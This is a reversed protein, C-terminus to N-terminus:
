KGYVKKELDDYSLWQLALPKQLMGKPMRPATIRVSKKGVKIVDTYGRFMVSYVRDGVKLESTDKIRNEEQAKKFAKEKEERDKTQGRMKVAEVADRSVDSDSLDFEGDQHAQYVAEAWDDKAKAADKWEKNRKKDYAKKKNDSMRAYQFPSIEAIWPQKVSKIIMWQSANLRWPKELDKKSLSAEHLRGINEILDRM